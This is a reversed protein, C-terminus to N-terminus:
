VYRQACERDKDVAAELEKQNQEYLAVTEEYSCEYKECTPLIDCTGRFLVAAHLYVYVNLDISTIM